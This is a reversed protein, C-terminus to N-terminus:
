PSLDAKIGRKGAKAEVLHCLDDSAIRRLAM